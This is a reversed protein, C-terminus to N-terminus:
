ASVLLMDTEVEVLPMDGTDLMFRYTPVLAGDVNVLVDRGNDATGRFAHLGVYEYLLIEIM